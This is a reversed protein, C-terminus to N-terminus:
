DKNPKDQYNLLQLHFLSHLAISQRDANEQLDIFLKLLEAMAVMFFGIVFASVSATMVFLRTNDPMPPATRNAPGPGGDSPLSQYYVEQTPSTVVSIFGVLGGLMAFVGLIMLVFSIVALAPYAQHTPPNQELMRLLTNIRQDIKVVQPSTKFNRMEDLLANTESLIRAGCHSCFISDDVNASHCIQCKVM